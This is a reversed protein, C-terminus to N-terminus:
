DEYGHMRMTVTAASAYGVLVEGAGMVIASDEIGGGAGIAIDPPEIWDADNPAAPATYGPPCIALRISVSNILDRNITRISGSAVKGAPCTYIATYTGAALAAKGLLGNAM